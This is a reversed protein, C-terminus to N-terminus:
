LIEGREAAEDDNAEVRKFMDRFSIIQGVTEAAHEVASGVLRWWTKFRTEAERSCSPDLKAVSFRHFGYRAQTSVAV